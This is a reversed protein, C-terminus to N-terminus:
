ALMNQLDPVVELQKNLNNVKKREAVLQQNAEEARQVLEHHANNTAESTAYAQNNQYQM